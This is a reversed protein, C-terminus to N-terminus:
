QVNEKWTQWDITNKYPGNTNGDYKIVRATGQYGGQLVWKGEKLIAKTMYTEILEGTSTTERNDYTYIYYETDSKFYILFGVYEFGDINSFKNKLNGGSVQQNSGVNDKNDDLRNELANSLLSNPNNIGDTDSVITQLLTNHSVEQQDDDPVNEKYYFDTIGMTYQNIKSDPTKTAYTFMAYVSGVSLISLVIALISIFKAFRKM